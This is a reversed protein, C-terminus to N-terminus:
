TLGFEFMEREKRKNKKNNNNININNGIIIKSALILRRVSSLSIDIIM